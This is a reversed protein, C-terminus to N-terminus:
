PARNLQGASTLRVLVTRLLLGASARAELREGTTDQTTQHEMEANIMAGVIVIFM